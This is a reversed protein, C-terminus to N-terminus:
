NLVTVTARSNAPLTQRRVTLREVRETRVRYGLGPSDRVMITGRPSVEIEPDISDENWYRQSASVDGPWRERLTGLSTEFPAKLRLRIQRIALTDIRM